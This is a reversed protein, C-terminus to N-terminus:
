LPISACEFYLPAPLAEVCIEDSYGWCVLSYPELRMLLFGDSSWLSESLSFFVEIQPLVLAVLLLREFLGEVESTGNYRCVTYLCLPM